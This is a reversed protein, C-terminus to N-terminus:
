GSEVWARVPAHGVREWEYVPTADGRGIGENFRNAVAWAKGVDSFVINEGVPPMIHILVLESRGLEAWYGVIYRYEGNVTNVERIVGYDGARVKTTQMGMKYRQKGLGLETFEKTILMYM